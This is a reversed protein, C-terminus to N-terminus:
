LRQIIQDRFLRQFDPHVTRREGDGHTSRAVVKFQRGPKQEGFSDDIAAGLDFAQFVRWASRVGFINNLNLQRFIDLDVGGGLLAIKEYSRTAADTALGGNVRHVAATHTRRIRGELNGGLNEAAKGVLQALRLADEFAGAPQM